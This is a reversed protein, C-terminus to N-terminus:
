ALPKKGCYADLAEQSAFMQYQRSEALKGLPKLRFDTLDFPNEYPVFV